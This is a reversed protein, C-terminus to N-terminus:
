GDAKTVQWSMPISLLAEAESLSEYMCVYMYVYVCVCVYVCVYVCVCVDMGTAFLFETDDSTILLRFVVSFTSDSTATRYNGYVAPGQLDDTAPHWTGGRKVRRVLAWGGGELKDECAYQPALPALETYKM